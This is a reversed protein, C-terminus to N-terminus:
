HNHLSDVSSILLEHNSDTTQVKFKKKGAGQINNTKMIKQVRTKDIKVVSDKLKKQLMLLGYTIRSDEWHYKRKHINVDRISLQKAANSVNKLEIALQVSQKKFEETSVKKSM